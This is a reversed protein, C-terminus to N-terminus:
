KGNEEGKEANSAELAEAIRDLAAAIPTLEQILTERLTERLQDQGVGLDQLAYMLGQWDSM